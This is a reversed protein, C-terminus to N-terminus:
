TVSTFLLDIIVDRVQTFNNALGREEGVVLKSFGLSLTLIPLCYVKMFTSDVFVIYPPAVDCTIDDKM